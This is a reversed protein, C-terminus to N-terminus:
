LFGLLFVFSVAIKKRQNLQLQWVMYVPLCLILVDGV